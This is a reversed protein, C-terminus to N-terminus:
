NSLLWLNTRASRQGLVAADLNVVFQKNVNGRGKENHVSEGIDNRGAFTSAINTNPFFGWLQTYSKM